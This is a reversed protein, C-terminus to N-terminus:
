NCGACRDSIRAGYLQTADFYSLLNTDALAQLAKPAHTVLDAYAPLAEVLPKIAFKEM